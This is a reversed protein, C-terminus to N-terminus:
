HPPLLKKFINTIERQEDRTGHGNGLQLAVKLFTWPSLVTENVESRHKQSLSEGRVYNPSDYVIKIEDEWVMGM